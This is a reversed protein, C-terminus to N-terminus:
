SVPGLFLECTALEEITTLKDHSDRRKALWFRRSLDWLLTLIDTWPGIDVFFRIAGLRPDDDAKQPLRGTDDHNLIGIL